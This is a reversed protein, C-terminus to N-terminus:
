LPLVIAIRLGGGPRNSAEITGDHARVAREAIALGLGFGTGNSVGDARVFRRFM